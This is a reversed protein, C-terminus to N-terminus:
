RKILFRHDFLLVIMLIPRSFLFSYFIILFSALLREYRYGLLIISFMIMIFIIEYLYFFVVLDRVRILYLLVLFILNLRIKYRINVILVIFYLVVVLIRILFNIDSNKFVWRYEEDLFLGDKLLWCLVGVGFM